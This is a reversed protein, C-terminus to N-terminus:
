RPEQHSRDELSKCFMEVQPYWARFPDPTTEDVGDGPWSWILLTDPLELKVTTTMNGSERRSVALAGGRELAKRFELVRGPPVDGVWLTSDGGAGRKEWRRVSGTSKLSYGSYRGTFGGGSAITIAFTEAADLKGAPPMGSGAGSEKQVKNQCAPLLAAALFFVCALLVRHM